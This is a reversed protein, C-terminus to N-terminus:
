PHLPGPDEEQSGEQGKLSAQEQPITLVPHGHIGDAAGM